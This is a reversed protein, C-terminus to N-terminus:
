FRWALPLQNIGLINLVESRRMMENLFDIQPPTRHESDMLDEIVVLHIDYEYSLPKSSTRNLTFVIPAVRYYQDDTHNYFNLIANPPQGPIRDQFFFDYVHDKIEEFNRLAVIRREDSNGFRTTGKIHINPIGKGFDDIFAGGKTQTVNVKAPYNVSYEQPNLAFTYLASINAEENTIEFAIRKTM